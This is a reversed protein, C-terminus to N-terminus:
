RSRYKAVIEGAM